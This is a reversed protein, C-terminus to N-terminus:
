QLVSACSCLAWFSSLVLLLFGFSFGGSSFLLAFVGVLPVVVVCFGGLCSCGGFCWDCVVGNFLMVMMRGQRRKQWIIVFSNSSRSCFRVSLGGHNAVM